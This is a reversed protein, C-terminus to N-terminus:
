TSCCIPYSKKVKLAKSAWYLNFEGSSHSGPSAVGEGDDTIYGPPPTETMPFSANDPCNLGLGACVCDM